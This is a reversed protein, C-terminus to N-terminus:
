QWVPCRCRTRSIRRGASQPTPGAELLYAISCGLFLGALPGAGVEPSGDALHGPLPSQGSGHDAHRGSRGRGRGLRAGARRPAPSRRHCPARRGAGPLRVEEAALAPLAEISAGSRQRLAALADIRSDLSRVQTKVANLLEQETSVLTGRFQMLDPNTAASRSPGTTLSDLKVRSEIVQQSLKAITPNSAMDPAYALSRVAAGRVSDDPSALLTPLDGYTRKDIRWWSNGSPTSRLFHRRPPPSTPGDLQGVASPEPFVALSAQAQALSSDTQRLQDTLLHRPTPIAGPGLPCQTAGLSQVVANVVSQAMQATDSASYSVDVVDTGQRPVIELGTLVQDIAPERSAVVLLATDSRAFQGLRVPSGSEPSSCSSATRRGYTSRTLAPSSTTAM